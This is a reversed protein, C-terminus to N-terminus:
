THRSVRILSTSLYKIYKWEDSKINVCGTSYPELHSSVREELRGVQERYFADQKQLDAERASLQKAQVYCVCFSSLHHDINEVSCDRKIQTRATRVRTNTIHVSKWNNDIASGNDQLDNWCLIHLTGM